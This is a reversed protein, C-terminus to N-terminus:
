LFCGLCCAARRQTQENRDIECLVENGIDVFELAKLDEKLQTHDRWTKIFRYLLYDDVFLHVTSEICFFFFWRAYSLKRPYM